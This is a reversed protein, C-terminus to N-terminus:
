CVVPFAPSKDYYADSLSTILCVQLTHPLYRLVRSNKLVSASSSGSSSCYMKIENVLDDPLRNTKIFNLVKEARDRTAVLQENFHMVTASLEGIVYRFVTLNMMILFISFVVEVFNQPVINGILSQAAVRTCVIWLSLLYKAAGPDTYWMGFYYWNENPKCTATLTESCSLDHYEYGNGLEPSDPIYQPDDRPYGLKFWTFPHVPDWYKYQVGVYYWFCCFLHMAAVSQLVLTIAKSLVIGTLGQRFVDYCFLLKFIRFWLCTHFSGGVAYIVWDIPCAAIISLNGVRRYIEWRNTIWVNHQTSKHATNIRAMVYLVTLTDPPVFLALSFSDTMSESPDVFSIRWPISIYHFAAILWALFTLFASLTCEPHLRGKIFTTIKEKSDPVKSRIVRRIDPWTINHENGSKSFARVFENCNIKTIKYKYDPFLRRLFEPINQHHLTSNLDGVVRMYVDEYRGSDVLNASLFSKSLRRSRAFISHIWEFLGLDIEDKLIDDEGSQSSSDSINCDTDMMKESNIEAQNGFDKSEEAQKDKSSVSAREFKEHKLRNDALLAIWLGWFESPSLDHLFKEEDNFAKNGDRSSLFLKLFTGMGIEGVEAWISILVQRGIHPNGGSLYQWAEEIYKLGCQIAYFDSMSGKKKSQSNFSAQSADWRCNSSTNKARVSFRTRLPRASIESCLDKCDDHQQFSSNSTGGLSYLGFSGAEFSRDLNCPRVDSDNLHLSRDPVRSTGTSRTTLKTLSHRKRNNCNEAMGLRLTEAVDPHDILLQELHSVPLQVLTCITRAKIIFTRRTRKGALVFHAGFMQGASLIHYSEEEQMADLGDSADLSTVGLNSTLSLSGSIIVFWNAEEDFERCSNAARANPPVPTVLTEDFSCLVQGKYATIVSAGVLLNKVITDPVIDLLRTKSKILCWIEDIPATLLAHRFTSSGAILSRLPLSTTSIGYNSRTSNRRDDGLKVQIESRRNCPHFNRISSRRGQELDAGRVERTWNRAEEFMEEIEYYPTGQSTHTSLTSFFSELETESIFPEHADAGCIDVVGPGALRKLDSQLTRFISCLTDYMEEMEGIRLATSQFRSVQYLTRDLVHEECYEREAMMLDIDSHLQAEEDSDIEDVEEFLMDQDAAALADWVERIQEEESHDITGDELALFITKRLKKVLYIHKRREHLVPTCNENQNSEFIKALTSTLKRSSPQSRISSFRKGKQLSPNSDIFECVPQVLLRMRDAAEKLLKTVAGFRDSPEELGSRVTEALPILSMCSEFTFRIEYETMAKPIKQDYGQSILFKLKKRVDGIEIRELEKMAREGEETEHLLALKGGWSQILKACYIHYLTGGQLARDLASAGWGDLEDPSCSCSLLYSTALVHGESAAVMLATRGDYDKSDLDVVRCTRLMRLAVMNGRKAAECLKTIGSEKNMRGGKGWLLYAISSHGSTIADELPTGGWRDRFNITAKCALLLEVVKMHGNACALHLSTRGDYDHADPDGQNDRLIRALKDDDGTSAAEILVSAVLGTGMRGNRQTLLQIISGQKAAVAEDLPTQGWRNLANVDAKEELLVDCVKYVGATAAHALVTRGDYDRHLEMGGALMMRVVDLDGHKAAFVLSAFSEERRRVIAAHLEARM